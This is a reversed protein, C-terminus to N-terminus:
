LTPQQRHWHTKQQFQHGLRLLAGEDFPRGILQIGNPLGNSTFGAPLALAPLGLYNIGRTWYSFNSFREEVDTEDGTTTEEITPVACPLVPLVLATAGSLYKALFHEQYQARLRLADFYRTGPYLLGRELRRRVQSGYDGPRSALWESHISAAEVGLMLTALAGAEALSPLLVRRLTAGADALDSAAQEVLARVEDTLPADSPFDPVFIIDAATLARDLGVEYNRPRTALCAPDHVDPGSVVSLLRACDRSTQALFGVCDLSPSLPMVGFTSVAHQTPKIATVGCAAAPIRVSGGTDSGLAGFVLRAAVAAGSGSSSGGTVYTPSWPNRGHGLHANFGTPSMAFEAMHLAGLNIAGANELRQLVTATVQPRFGRLIQSGCESPLGAQFFMDKHALPVGHLVGLPEGDRKKQDLQAARALAQARQTRVFGNFNSMSAEIRELCASSLAAASVDGRALAAVESLSVAGPLAGQIDNIM